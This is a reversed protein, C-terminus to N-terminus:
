KVYLTDFETRLINYNYIALYTQYKADLYDEKANLVEEKSILGKEFKFEANNVKNLCIAEWKQALRVKDRATLIDNYKNRITVELNIKADEFSVKANELNLMNEDYTATGQEYDEKTLEMIKENAKLEEGKIYLEADNNLANEVVKEIDIDKTTTLVLDDKIEILEENMDLSLIRKLELNASELKGTVKNIDIAKSDLAYKADILDNETLKGEKFRAEAIKYKENLIDQKGKEMELEKKILLMNSTAKYAELELNKLNKEKTKKAYELDAAAKAPNVERTIKSNLIDIKTNGSTSMKADKEADRLASEKAKINLDDIVAQKSNSTAMNKSEQISFKLSDAAFATTVATIFLISIILSTRKKM